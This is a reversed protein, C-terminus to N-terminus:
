QPKLAHEFHYPDNLRNFDGGYSKLGGWRGGISKWFLGLPIYPKHNWVIKKGSQDTIWIDIALSYRHKSNKIGTGLKAYKEAVFGPRHAEGYRWRIKKLDAYGLLLEVMQNFEDLQSRRNM